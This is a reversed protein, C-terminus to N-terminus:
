PPKSAPPDPRGPKASTKNGNEDESAATNSISRRGIAAAFPMRAPRTERAHDDASISTERSTVALPEAKLQEPTEELWRAALVHWRRHLEHVRTKPIGLRQAIERYTLGGQRMRAVEISRARLEVDIEPSFREDFVATPTGKQDREITFQPADELNWVIKEARSRLQRLYRKGPEDGLDGIAFVCDAASCILRYESVTDPTTDSDLTIHDTALVLVSVGYRRSLRRMQRMFTLTERVGYLTRKLEEISDIIIVRMDREIIYREICQALGDESEPRYHYLNASLTAGAYRAAFQRESMNLDVFLVKQRKATMRLDGISRGKAISDAIQTALTSKGSSEGGFMLAVEGERWFEDFLFREDTFNQRAIENARRLPPLEADNTKQPESAKEINNPPLSTNEASASTGADGGFLTSLAAFPSTNTNEEGKFDRARKRLEDDM